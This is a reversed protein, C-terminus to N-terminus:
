QSANAAPPQRISSSNPMAMPVGFGTAPGENLRALGDCIADVFHSREAISSVHGGPLWRLEVAPWAHKMALYAARPVFRDRHAGVAIVPSQPSPPSLRPLATQYFLEALRSDFDSEQPATSRLAHWDCLRHTLGDIFVDVGSQPAVVTAIAVPFPMTAGAAASIYGGKSIGAVALKRVGQVALWSLLSHAEEIASGCLLFFDSLHLLKVTTQAAPRRKGLFAGEILMSGIGRRALVAATRDRGVYGGEGTTPMQLVVPPTIVDAPLVLKVYVTQAETPLYDAYRPAAFRGYREVLNKRRVAPGDWHIDISAPPLPTKYGRVVAEIAINSGWGQSFMAPERKSIRHRVFFYLGDLRGWWGDFRSLWM